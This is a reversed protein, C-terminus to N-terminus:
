GIIYNDIFPINVDVRSFPIRVFTILWRHTLLQVLAGHNCEFSSHLWLLSHARLVVLLVQPILNDLIAALMEHVADLVKRPCEFHRM